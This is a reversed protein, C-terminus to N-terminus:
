CGPVCCVKCECTSDDESPQVTEVAQSSTASHDQEPSYFDVTNKDQRVLIPKIDEVSSNAREVRKDKQSLPTASNVEVSPTSPAAEDEKLIPVTTEREDKALAPTRTTGDYRPPFIGSDRVPAGPSTGNDESPGSPSQM